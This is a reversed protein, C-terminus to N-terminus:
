YPHERLGFRCLLMSILMEGVFFSVVGAGIDLATLSLAVRCALLPLLSEPIQDLGTARAGAPLRIRRKVFSSCIDGAMAVSSVLLGIKWGLGILQAGASTVGLSLVIGRVTKSEGFLPRGDGLRLGGDLPYAFRRGLCDKLIVPAGNALLLLLLLKLVLVPHM